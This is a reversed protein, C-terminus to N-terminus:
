DPGDPHEFNIKLRGIHNRGEGVREYSTFAFGNFLAVVLGDEVGFGYEGYTLVSQRNGHFTSRLGRRDIAIQAHDRRIIQKGGDPFVEVFHEHKARM